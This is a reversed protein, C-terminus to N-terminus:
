AGGDGWLCVRVVPSGEKAELAEQQLGAVSSTLMAKPLKLSATIIWVMIASM